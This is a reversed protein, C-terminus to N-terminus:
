VPVNHTMEAHETPSVLGIVWLTWTVTVASRWGWGAQEGGGGGGGGWTTPPIVQHMVVHLKSMSTSRRKWSFEVMPWFIYTQKNTKNRFAMFEKHNQAETCKPVSLLSCIKIKLLSFNNQEANHLSLFRRFSEFIVVYYSCDSSPSAKSLWHHAIETRLARVSFITDTNGFIFHGWRRSGWWIWPSSKIWMKGTICTLSNVRFLSVCVCLILYQDNFTGNSCKLVTAPCSKLLSRQLGKSFMKLFVLLFKLPWLKFRSAICYTVKQM